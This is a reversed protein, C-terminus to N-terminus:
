ARTIKCEDAMQQIRSNVKRCSVFFPKKLCQIRITEERSEYAWNLTFGGRSAEGQASDIRIGYEQRVADKVTAWKSEGVRSYVLPDCAL